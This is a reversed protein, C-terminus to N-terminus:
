GLMPDVVRTQHTHADIAPEPCSTRGSVRTFCGHSGQRSRNVLRGCEWRAPIWPTQIHEPSHLFVATVAWKFLLCNSSNTKPYSLHVAVNGKQLNLDSDHFANLHIIRPYLILFSEKEYPLPSPLKYKFWCSWVICKSFSLEMKNLFCSTDNFTYISLILLM